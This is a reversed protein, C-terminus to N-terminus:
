LPVAPPKVPRTGESTYSSMPFSARLRKSSRRPWRSFRKGIHFHLFHHYPPKQFRSGWYSTAKCHFMMFMGDICPHNSSQNPSVRNWSGGGDTTPIGMLQYFRVLITKKQFSDRPIEIPIRLKSWPVYNKALSPISFCWHHSQVSWSILFISSGPGWPDPNSIISGHTHQIINMNNKFAQAVTFM